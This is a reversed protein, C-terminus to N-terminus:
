AGEVLMSLDLPKTGRNLLSTSLIDVGCKDWSLLDCYEIGGSGELLVYERLNLEELKNHTLQAKNPSFNDLMIVCKQIDDKEKWISAVGIAEDVSRVEVTLFAGIKTATLDMMRERITNGGGIGEFFLDNEKLMCADRKSLRHTLGGGLHVAWKDLLGWITKRTCALPAPSEHVWAATNTAVGSLQGLCNLMSRELVLIAERSGSFVAIEQEKHAHEGDKVHWIVTIESSFREIIRDVMVAGAVIGNERAIITFIADDGRESVRDFIDDDALISDIWSDISQMLQGTPRNM